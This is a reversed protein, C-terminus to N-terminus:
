KAFDGYVRLARLYDKHTNINFFSLEPDVDSCSDMDVQKLRISDYFSVVKRSTLLAKEIAALCNKSYVACLPEYKGGLRPVAADYGFVANKIHDILKKTVFPTDCTTVFSYESESAKLGSYVGMLPGMDPKEDTTFTIQNVLDAAIKERYIEPKNTVIIIRDFMVALLKVKHEILSQAGIQLFAKEKGGMRTQRGGSLIIADM